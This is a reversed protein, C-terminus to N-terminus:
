AEVANATEADVEPGYIVSKIGIRNAVNQFAEEVQSFSYEHTVLGDVNVRRADLLGIATRFDGPGYRFSGKLTVEKDCIQGIPVTVSPRGLGVQIFTGGPTVAHLGCVLCPEAGTADFIVDAGDELGAARLLDAANVEPLADSMQYTHTAGYKGAVTLRSSVIDVAVVTSAGFARAVACCLLGVPGAGFIIVSKTQMDGALRCAHVAVSLPEVLAGQRLSIHAPLKFCCEVPVRYYTCLTGDIPPTAAFRMDRCLNYRGRRCPECTNCAVGPELAVRDGVAIGEAKSGCSVVIGTSEHGLIIPQEVVYRGIRGHQWYHVDSGCLGTAVIKVIVDRESQVEPAKRTEYYFSGGPKLVAALNADQTSDAAIM